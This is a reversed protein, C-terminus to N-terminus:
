ETIMGSPKPSVTLDPRLRGAAALGAEFLLAIDEGTLGHTVAYDRIRAIHHERSQSPTLEAM